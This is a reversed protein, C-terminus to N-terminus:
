HLKSFRPPLCRRRTFVFRTANLREPRPTEARMDIDCSWAGVGSFANKLAKPNAWTSNQYADEDEMEMRQAEQEKKHYFAIMAKQEDESVIPERSPAGAGKKQLKVIVKSKDNKGVYDCLKKDRQLEKSFCWLSAQAGDLQELAPFGHAELDRMQELLPVDHQLLAFLHPDNLDEVGVELLETRERLIERLEPAPAGGPQPCREDVCLFRRTLEPAPPRRQDVCLFRCPLQSRVGFLRRLVIPSESM